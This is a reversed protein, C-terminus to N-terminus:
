LTLFFFKFSSSINFVPVNLFPFIGFVPNTLRAFVLELPFHPFKNILFSCCFFSFFLIYTFNSCLSVLFDELPLFFDSFRQIKALQILLFVGMMKGPKIMHVSKTVM